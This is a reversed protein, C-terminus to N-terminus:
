PPPGVPTSSSLPMTTHYCLWYADNYFLSPATASSPPPYNPTLFQQSKWQHIEAHGDVFGFGCAGNHAQSPMNNMPISSGWDAATAPMSEEFLGDDISTPKEDLFVYFQPPHPIQSYKTNWYYVNSASNGSDANMYNQMSISRARFPALQPNNVLNGPDAPCKYVGVAKEYYGLAGFQLLNANTEDYTGPVGPSATGSVNGPCWNFDNFTGTQPLILGTGTYNPRQDGINIMLRDNNDHAYMIWGMVLQKENNMCHVGQAQQKAHALAPLLLAALIAIIAIVVLLEILTFAATAPRKPSEIRNAIPMISQPQSLSFRVCARPFALSINDLQM